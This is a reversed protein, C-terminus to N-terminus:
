KLVRKITKMKHTIQNGDWIGAEQLRDIRVKGSAHLIEHDELIIGVHNVKGHDDAFFALDGATIEGLSSVPSGAKIQDRSDRPLSHGAIRFVQQVLGSCDIGFPSRGGWLYPTNLYKLGMALLEGASLKEGIPKAQGSFQLVSSSSFLENSSIPVIGGMVLNTSEGELVVPTTLDTIIQYDSYNIQHFYESSITHHQKFDLWATYHDFHTKIQLWKGDPTASLVQYHEGFLLQSVMESTDSPKSRLPVMALRCIGFLHNGEVM